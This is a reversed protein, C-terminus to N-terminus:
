GGQLGIHQHLTAVVAQFFDDAPLHDFGSAALNQGEGEDRPIGGARENVVDSGPSLFSQFLEGRQM